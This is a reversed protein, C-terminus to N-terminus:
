EPRPGLVRGVLCSVHAVEAWGRFESRGVKGPAVGQDDEKQIKMIQNEYKNFKIGVYKKFNNGLSIFKHWSHLQM